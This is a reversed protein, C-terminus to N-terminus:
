SGVSAFGRGAAGLGGRSISPASAVRAMAQSGAPSATFGRADGTASATSGVHSGAYYWHFGRGGSSSSTSSGSGSGGQRCEPTTAGPACAPTGGGYLPMVPRTGFDALTRGILVGAMVPIAYSALGPRTQIECAGGTEEQCRAQDPFRPASVQHEARAASFASQCASAGESGYATVCAAESTFMTDANTADEGCAVLALSAASLMTLHIAATRRM